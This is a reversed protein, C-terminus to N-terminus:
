QIWWAPLQIWREARYCFTSECGVPIPPGSALPIPPGCGVPIPPGSAPPILPGSRGSYGNINAQDDAEAQVQTIQQAHREQAQM